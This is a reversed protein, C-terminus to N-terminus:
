PLECLAALIRVVEAVDMTMKQGVVRVNGSPDLRLASKGVRISVGDRAEMEIRRGEVRV